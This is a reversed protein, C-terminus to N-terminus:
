PSARTPTACDPSRWALGQARPAPRGGGAEVRSGDQDPTGRGFGPLRSHGRVAGIGGAQDGLQTILRVAGAGRRGGRLQLPRRHCEDGRRPKTRRRQFPAMLCPLESSAACSSSPLSWRTSRSRDGTPSSSCTACWHHAAPRQDQRPLVALRGSRGFAGGEARRPGCGSRHRPAGGGGRHKYFGGPDEEGDAFRKHWELAHAALRDFGAGPMRRPAFRFALEAVEDDLGIVEFLESGRYASVTCIGM